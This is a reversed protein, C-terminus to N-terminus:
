EYIFSYRFSVFIPKARMCVPPASFINNARQNPPASFINHARRDQPASFINNARPDPPFSLCLIL